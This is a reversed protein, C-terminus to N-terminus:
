PSIRQERYGTLEMYGRGVSHDDQMVAVIGEWYTVGAEMLQDDFMAQIEYKNGDFELTWDVPWLAGQADAWFSEPTLKFESASLTRSQGSADVLLGHDYADRGGDRRRLRFVMLDRGDDLHM